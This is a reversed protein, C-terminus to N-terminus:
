CLCKGLISCQQDGGCSGWTTCCYTFCDSATRCSYTPPVFFDGLAADVTSPSAMPTEQAFAPAAAPEEVTVALKPGAAILAVLLAALPAFGLQRM